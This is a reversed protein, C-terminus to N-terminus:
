IWQALLTHVAERPSTCYIVDELDPWTNLGVVTKGMKLALAIESLTGYGGSVAILGHSARAILVNRAHDLGTPIAINIYPNAEEHSMGPLLGITLGDAASAGKSAAEMVGGLGGCLLIGGQRAIEFGVQYAIDATDSDCKRSGIVGILPARMSMM